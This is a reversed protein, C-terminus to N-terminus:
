SKEKVYVVETRAAGFQTTAAFTHKTWNELYEDYLATEYGSLVVPGAHQRLAALLDIHESDSSMEHPYQHGGSRASHLYPPDVYLLMGSDSRYRSVVNQWPQSELSVHRLRAALPGIRGAFTLGHQAPSKRTRGQVRWGGHVPSGSVSQTYLVWLQRADEVADPPPGERRARDYEVRSHPTLAIARDVEDGRDRLTRWFRVLREDLDNVVEILEPAKALLVSLSGGFPECYRDHRPFLSVIQPGLMTKQGYYPFPPLLRV